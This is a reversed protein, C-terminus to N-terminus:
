NRGAWDIAAAGDSMAKETPILASVCVVDSGPLARDRPQAPRNVSDVPQASNMRTSILSLLM